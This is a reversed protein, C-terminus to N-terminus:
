ENKKIAKKSKPYRVFEFEVLHESASLVRYVHIRFVGFWKWWSEWKTRENTERGKKKKKPLEVFDWAYGLNITITERKEHQSSSSNNNNDNNNSIRKWLFSSSSSSSDNITKAGSEDVWLDNHYDATTTRAFAWMEFLIAHIRIAHTHTNIHLRNACYEWQYILFLYIKRAPAKDEEKKVRKPTKIQQFFTRGVNWCLHLCCVRFAMEIPSVTHPHYPHINRLTVLMWVCM